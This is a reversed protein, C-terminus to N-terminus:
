LAGKLGWLPRKVPHKILESVCVRRRVYVRVYV